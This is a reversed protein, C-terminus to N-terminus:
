ENDILLTSRKSGRVRKYRGTLWVLIDSELKNYIPESYDESIEILLGAITDCLDDLNTISRSMLLTAFEHEYVELMGQYDWISMGDAKLAEILPSRHSSQM